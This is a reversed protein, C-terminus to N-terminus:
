TIAVLSEALPGCHRDNVTLDATLLYRRGPDAPGDRGAIVDFTLIGRQGPALTLAGRAPALALPAAAPAGLAASFTAAAGFSNRLQLTLTRRAGRRVELQYPVLRAWFVDIGLDAPEPLLEQWLAEKEEVYRRHTAFAEPPVDCWPGHGPCLLDPRLRDFEDACKRHMELTLSNRIVTNVMWESDDRGPIYRKLPYSSDGGFLVRRGDIQGLIAGHFETQGPYRVMEFPFGEWEFVEGDAFRRDVRIPQPLLCPLNWNEPAELVRAVEDLTWCCTGYHRQLHPIGCVHDDHYHTALAVDFSTVGWDQRLEDLHHELFRLAAFPEPTHLATMFLGFSPYPYDVILARGGGGLVVYFNACTASCGLLHPTLRELRHQHAFRGGDLGMRYGTQDALRRLRGDLAAMCAAPDDIAPGHSPLALDIRRRGLADMSLAVWHAGTLDGYEYEMAHLQYLRGGAHMLDGTFAVRVGDIQGVLTLSGLTHGPTPLVELSWRGWQFTEYDELAAAVAVSEGLSNFTSRDNYNDYIRKQQWYAEAGAFLFREHAPVALRAGAEVMRAAGCCQDRHHHTCLVWDVDAVGIEALHDLVAGSGCDIVLARCTPGEGDTLVYANCTDDLRYLHPLLRTLTAM